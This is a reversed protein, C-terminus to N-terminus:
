LGAKSADIAGNSIVEAHQRHHRTPRLNLLLERVRGGQLALVELVSPRRISAMDKGNRMSECNAKPMKFGLPSSQTSVIGFRYAAVASKIDCIAVDLQGDFPQVYFWYIPLILGQSHPHSMVSDKAAKDGCAKTPRM